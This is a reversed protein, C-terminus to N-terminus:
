VTLTSGYISGGCVVERLIGTARPFGAAGFRAAAPESVGEAVLEPAAALSWRVPAGTASRMRLSALRLLKGPATSTGGTESGGKELRGTCRMSALPWPM